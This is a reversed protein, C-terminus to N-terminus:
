SEKETERVESVIFSPGILVVQDLGGGGEFVESQEVYNWNHVHTILPPARDWYSKM